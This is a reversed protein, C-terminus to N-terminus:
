AVQDMQERIRLRELFLEHVRADDADPYQQRIGAKCFESAFDFLRPGDLIKEGPDMQRAAEVKDELLADILEQTPDM